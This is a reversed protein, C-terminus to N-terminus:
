LSLNGTILMKYFLYFTSFIFPYFCYVFLVLSIMWDLLVFLRIKRSFFLVLALATIRLIIQVAFFLFLRMGYINCQRAAAIDHHLIASFSRTLGCSPCNIGLYKHHICVIHERFSHLSYSYMLVTILILLFAINVALYGKRSV